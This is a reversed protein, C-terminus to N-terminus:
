STSAVSVIWDKLPEPATSSALPIVRVDPSEPLSATEPTTDPAPEKLLAPDPVRVKEPLLM